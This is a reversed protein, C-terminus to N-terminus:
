KGWFRGRRVLERGTSHVLWDAEREHEMAREERRQWERRRGALGSGEGVQSLRALLVANAARVAATSLRRRITTVEQGLQQSSPPEGRLGLTRVRCTALLTVLTHVDPSGEGYCGWALSLLPLEDLRRQCPGEGETGNIIVDMAVAKRRYGAPIDAARRDVAKMARTGSKYYKKVGKGLVKIEAIMPGNFDRPLPAPSATGAPTPQIGTSTPPRVTVAPVDLRLDPRLM